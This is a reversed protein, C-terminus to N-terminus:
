RRRRRGATLLALAALAAAAPEPVTTYTFYDGTAGGRAGDPYNDGAWFDTIAIFDFSVPNGIATRALSMEHDLVPWDDYSTVPGLWTWSWDTGTGTYLYLTAGELMYEGGVAFIGDPGLYGTARAQDTDLILKQYNSLFGGADNDFLLQRLHFSTADHAVTISSCDVTNVDADDPDATFPTTSAWDSRDNNGAVTNIAGDAVPNTLTLLSAGHASLTGAAALAAIRALPHNM